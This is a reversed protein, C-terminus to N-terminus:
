SPGNKSKFWLTYALLALAGSMALPVLVAFYSHGWALILWILLASGVLALALVGFIIKAQMKVQQSSM